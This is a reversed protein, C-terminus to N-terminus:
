KSNNYLVTDGSVGNQAMGFPGPNMGLFLVKKPGNGYKRVFCSHTESAYDLPNYVYVVGSPSYDVGLLQTCLHHEIDLLRQYTPTSVPRAADDREEAEKEKGKEEEKEEEEESCKM